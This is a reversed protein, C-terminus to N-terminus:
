ATWDWKRTLHLEHRKDNYRRTSSTYCFSHVKISCMYEVTIKIKTEKKNQHREHKGMELKGSKNVVPKGKQTQCNYKGNNSNRSGIVGKAIKILFLYISIIYQDGRTESIVQLM